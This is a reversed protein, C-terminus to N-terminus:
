AGSFRMGIMLAFLVWFGSYFSRWSMKLTRPPNHLWWVLMSTGVVAASVFMVGYPTFLRDLAGGAIGRLYGFVVTGVISFGMLRRVGPSRLEGQVNQLQGLARLRGWLILETYLLAGFWFIACLLHAVQLSIVIATM